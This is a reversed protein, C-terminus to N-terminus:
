SLGMLFATVVDQQSGTPFIVSGDKIRVAPQPKTDLSLTYYVLYHDGKNVVSVAGCGKATLWGAVRLAMTNNSVSM